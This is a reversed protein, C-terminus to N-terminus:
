ITSLILEIGAEQFSEQYLRERPTEYGALTNFWDFFIGKYKM